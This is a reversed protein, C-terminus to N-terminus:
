VLSGLFILVGEQFKADIELITVSTNIELITRSGGFLKKDVAM